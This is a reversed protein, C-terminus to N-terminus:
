ATVEGSKYQAISYGGTDQCHPRDTFRDWTGGWELGCEIAIAGCRDWLDDDDWVADGNVVPVFDFAVRHNHFSDGGKVNTVKRGPATRGIAYLANQSEIDRYTSTIVVKIGAEACRKVFARCKEATRPLLDDIDRSNRM